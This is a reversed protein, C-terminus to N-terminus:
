GGAAGQPEGQPADAQAEAPPAPALPPRSLAALRARLTTLEQRVGDLEEQLAARQEDARDASLEAEVLELQARRLTATLEAREAEADALADTLRQREAELALRERETAATAEEAALRAAEAAEAAAIADARAADAAERAARELAWRREADSESRLARQREADALEARRAAEQRAREADARREQAVRQMQTAADAQSTAARRQADALEVAEHLLRREHGLWLAGGVMALVLSAMVASTLVAARHRRAWLGARLLPRRRDLSTPLGARYAELDAALEAATAYRQRPDRAMARRVIAALREPVSPDVERVDAAPEERVRMVTELAPRPPLDRPQYPAQGTVLAYLTAGLSYIDSARVPARGHAQEPPMYCPTGVLKGDGAPVGLTVTETGPTDPEAMPFVQPAALGFDTVLARRSVPTLLINAPKIDRHLVGVRHAADVGRAAEAMVRLIEDLSRLPTQALTKGIALPERGDADPRHEACLAMDIYHLHGGFRGASKIRVVHDSIIRSAARAETMVAEMAHHARVVPHLLKLATWTRLQEDFARWVSATAGAGLEEELRYRGLRAGVEVTLADGEDADDGEEPPLEDLASLLARVEAEVSPHGACRQRLAEERADAPLSAVADFVDDVFLSAESGPGVPRSPDPHADPATM